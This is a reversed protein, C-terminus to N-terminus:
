IIGVVRLYVYLFPSSLLLSDIIDLIGGLGPIANSDKVGADRKLLSESLDGIMSAIGIVTGLILWTSLSLEPSPAIWFHHVAESLVAAGVLGGIAGEITKKPSLSLALPHKGFLKGTFYAVMDSGKSTVILWTIWFTTPKGSPLLPVFTIDIIWSLPFVIYVFGFFTLALNAIAGQQRALFTLPTVLAALFLFFMPLLALKPFFTALSYILLYLFSFWYLLSSAPATDKLRCLRVYEVLAVFQICALGAVFIWEYPPTHVLYILTGILLILASSFFIRYWFNSSPLRFM